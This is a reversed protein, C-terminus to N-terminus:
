ACTSMRLAQRRVEDHRAVIWPVEEGGEPSHKDAAGKGWLHTGWLVEVSAYSGEQIPAGQACPHVLQTVM